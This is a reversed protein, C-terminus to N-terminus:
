PHVYSPDIANARTSGIGYEDPSTTLSRMQLMDLHKCHWRGTRWVDYGIKSGLSIAVGNNLSAIKYNVISSVETYIGICAIIILYVEQIHTLEQIWEQKPQLMRVRVSQLDVAAASGTLASAMM